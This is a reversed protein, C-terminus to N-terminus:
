GGAEAAKRAAAIVNDALHSPVVEYHAFEMTYIGRGGTMSRLDNGYRLM